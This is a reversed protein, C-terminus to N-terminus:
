DGQTITMEHSLAKEVSSTHALAKDVDSTHAMSKDLTIEHTLNLDRATGEMWRLILGVIGRSWGGAM